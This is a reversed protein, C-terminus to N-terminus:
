VYIFAVFIVLLLIFSCNINKIHSLQWLFPLMIQKNMSWILVLALLVKDLYDPILRAILMKRLRVNASTWLRFCLAREIFTWWFPSAHYGAFEWREAHPRRWHFLTRTVRCFAVNNTMMTTTTITTMTVYIIVVHDDTTRDFYPHAIPRDDDIELHSYILTRMWTGLYPPWRISSTLCM